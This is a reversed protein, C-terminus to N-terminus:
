VRMLDFRTEFLKAAPSRRWRKVDRAREREYPSRM